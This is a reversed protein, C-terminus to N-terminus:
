LDDAAIVEGGNRTILARLTEPAIEKKLFRVAGDCFAATTGAEFQGGIKPLPKEKDDDVILDVPKTWPVLKDAEVVMLTNSTGDTITAIGQGNEGEFVCGAGKFGQYYTSNEPMGEKVVVPAYISPMKALLGKNHPSDWAEDLHFEDFLPQQEIYPLILVRWSLLPTNDAGLVAAAPFANKSAHYNHFALAIHKLNNTSKSRAEPDDDARALGPLAWASVPLLVSARLFSRRTTM